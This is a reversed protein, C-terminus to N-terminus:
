KKYLALFMAFDKMMSARGMQRQAAGVLSSDFLADLALKEAKSQEYHQVTEIHQMFEPFLGSSALVGFLRDDDKRSSVTPYM